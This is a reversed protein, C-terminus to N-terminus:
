NNFAALIIDLSHLVNSQEELPINDYIDKFFRNNHAEIEKYIDEGKTTLSIDVSRRDTASPTRTVFGKRVLTDVTRSTTSIDIDLIESLLKLSISNARGIEVLGHCQPLTLSSGNSGMSTTAKKLLGLKRELIRIQERFELSNDM